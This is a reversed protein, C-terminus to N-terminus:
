QQCFLQRLVESNRLIEVMILFISLFEAPNRDDHVLDKQM